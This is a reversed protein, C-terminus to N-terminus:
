YLFVWDSKKQSPPPNHCCLNSVEKHMYPELLHLQLRHGPRVWEMGKEVYEMFSCMAAENGHWGVELIVWCVTCVHECVNSTNCMPHTVNSTNHQIHQTQHTTNSAANIPTCLEARISGKHYQQSRHWERCQISTASVVRKPIYSTLWKFDPLWLWLM